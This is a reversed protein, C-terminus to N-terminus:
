TVYIPLVLEGFSLQHSSLSSHLKLSFVQKWHGVCRVRTITLASLCHKKLSEKLQTNDVRENQHAKGELETLRNPNPAEIDYIRWSQRTKELVTEGCSQRIRSVELVLVALSSIGNRLGYNFDTVPKLSPVAPRSKPVHWTPPRSLAWCPSSTILLALAHYPQTYLEVKPM